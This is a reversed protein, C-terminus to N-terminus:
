ARRPEPLFLAAVFGLMPMAATIGLAVPLGWQDAVLGLFAVGLGGVGNAFGVNLGAAMAQHRPLYAQGLVVSVSFTSILVFGLAGLLMFSWVGRAFLFGTALPTALFFVAVLFRRPGWRDAIPGGVLTGAAGAGLFVFLLPGVLRPDVGLYDVYFFPVFTTFGLHAWSRLM